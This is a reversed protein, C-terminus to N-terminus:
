PALWSFPEVPINRLVGHAVVIGLIAWSWWPRWRPAPLSRGTFCRLVYSATAYAAFPAALVMLPNLGLATGVRGHLLHHTARLSGCGPCYLRTFAHFPCPLFLLSRAPDVAYLLAAAGIIVACVVSAEFWEGPEAKRGPRGM